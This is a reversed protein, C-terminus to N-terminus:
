FDINRYDSYEFMDIQFMEMNNQLIDLFPSRLPDM